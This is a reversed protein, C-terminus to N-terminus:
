AHSSSPLLRALVGAVEDVPIEAFTRRFFADRAEGARRVARSRLVEVRNGLPAWRTPGYPAEVRGFLVVVPCDVAAALHSPGTDRTVLALAGRLLWALEALDIKGTLDVFPLNAAQAGARFERHSPDDFQHGVLVIAAGHRARLRLALDLYHAVPWRAIPSFASPHLCVYHKLRGAVAEGLKQDLTERSARPLSVVARLSEEEPAAIGLPKLLDFNYSAERMRFEKRRDPVAGTLAFDTWGSGYGIRRPIGALQAALNLAPDPHLSVVADFRGEKLKRRLLLVREVFTARPDPLAFFGAAALSPHDQFLPAMVPRAAFFVEAEPFAAAVHALCSSAIIVDGVRDPRVILLRRPPNM